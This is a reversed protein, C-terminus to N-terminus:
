KTEVPVRMTYSLFKKNCHRFEGSALLGGALMGSIGPM